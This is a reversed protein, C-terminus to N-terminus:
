AMKTFVLRDNELKIEVWGQKFEPKIDDSVQYLGAICVLEADLNRAYIRAQTKGAAGAFVKGKVSGYIHVHGDAVVEAGPNVTGKVILDRGKAYIQQGSRVAGEVMKAGQDDAKTETDLTNEQPKNAPEFVALGSYEAQERIAVVGTRVGIPVMQKQHLFEVLLALFTPEFKEIQPEIVVPLGSFFEPAQTIKKDLQKKVDKIDDSYIKLVSLSLVSGKLEIVKSM